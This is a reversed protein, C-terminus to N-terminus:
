IKSPRSSLEILEHQGLQINYRDHIIDSIFELTIPGCTPPYQCSGDDITLDHNTLLSDTCQLCFSGITFTTDIM